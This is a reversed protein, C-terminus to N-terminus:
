SQAVPVLVGVLFALAGVGTYILGLVFGRRLRSALQEKAKNTLILEGHAGPDAYMVLQSPPALGTGDSVPPGPDRRSPGRAYLVDGPALLEEEYSMTKRHGFFDTSKIDRARLFDEIHPPPRRSGQSVVAKDVVVNAGQPLIRAVEGSDDDVFFPPSHVESLVVSYSPGSQGGGKIHTVTVRAWVVERGSFPAVVLGEDSPAIHGEIEVLGGMAQRVPSTPTALIRRRRALNNLNSLVTITGLILLAIGLFLLVDVLGSM